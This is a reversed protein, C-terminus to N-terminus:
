AAEKALIRAKLEPYGEGPKATIGLSLGKRMIGAPSKWWEGMEDKPKPMELEDDFREGRLWTAPLPIYHRERGSLNWFKVHVPLTERARFKQDATLQSWAKMADKKGERRPFTAWFTQWDLDNANEM